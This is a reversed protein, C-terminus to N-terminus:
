IPRSRVVAFHEKMKLFPTELWRYSISSFIVTSAFGTLAYETFAKVSNTRFLHGALLLGAAHYVYLGYSIRGLYTLLPNTLIKAGAAPAGIVAILIGAAAIAVLPRGLLTGLVPAVETQANLKTYAAVICWLSLSLGALAVRSFLRLSPAESGLAYAALIGLAIADLRAFTNYEVSGGLAHTFVLYGRIANALLLLGIVAFVLQSRSIRRLALPWFLYFQEEISVSWLPGAISHPFGKWVFIWNGALLLSGAIYPWGFHQTRDWLPVLAAVATFFFYLPWIRLIRRIYFARIDIHGRVAEERILLTTILYASLAFFLDVGFAGASSVACILPVVAPSLFHHTQYFSSDNPITHFVFVGLFAFFRLTDLEPRYFRQRQFKEPNVVSTATAAPIKRTNVTEHFTAPRTVHTM